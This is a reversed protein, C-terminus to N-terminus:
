KRISKQNPNFLYLEEALKKLTYHIRSKITGEPCSLIASIEKISKDEQYRLIFSMRHKEELKNLAVQLKIQFIEADLKIPGKPQVTNLQPNPLPQHIYRIPATKENRRYENKCMNSAITYIWTSGNYSSNFSEAKEFIKMFLSQCFDAALAPEQYLMKYFFAYMKDAYRSYLEDFAPEKGKAILPILQEDSYQNYKKRFLKM